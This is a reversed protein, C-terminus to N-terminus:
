DQRLVGQLAAMTIYNYPQNFHPMFFIDLLALRELTVQEQIALSFMHIAASMDYESLLQAGIVVHNDRRYVIRIKVEPNVAAETMFAPKQLDTFDTALAEIGAQAATEVTQGTCVMKLGFLSLASSGQVGLSESDLGCINFAAVLGSRVANTALAIYSTQGISNDFVTACDGIAYVDPDSTQQRLNVEFAGNRFRKLHDGGLQSNPRFGICFMVLDTEYEGKDTIVKEVRTSGEFREAREGLRIRIGKERLRQAMIESFDRDFHTGLIRDLADILTVERGQLTYAEALEAGIYGAGIVTVKRISPDNRIQDIAKVADQYIKARQINPLDIGPVPPWIPSSGTALVLKDYCDTGEEGDKDRFTITKNKYDVSTIETEMIVKAGRAELTEKSAYFLGDGTTIQNGIWIAMGCGLFSINSNKDYVVVEAEPNLSLIQKICATGAHNAGVVIIKESM